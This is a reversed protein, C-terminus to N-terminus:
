GGVTSGVTVGVASGVCMESLLPDAAPLGCAATFSGIAGVAAAAGAAAAAGDTRAGAHGFSQLAFPLHRGVDIQMQLPPHAPDSQEVNISAADISRFV